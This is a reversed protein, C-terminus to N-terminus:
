GPVHTPGKPKAQIAGPADLRQVLANLATPDPTIAAAPQVPAARILESPVNFARALWRAAADSDVTALASPGLSSLAGLWNLVNRADRRGQNQALPSRYQLDITRGDVQLPPIEGRRRLIHIARLILPTLLESQLRGYTAGLLRAMDDARQLVETATLAPSAPQSLKDGMLAHRIRGRLDDLVLQSTDFRGPATLPQLGASGVAKPIITGPVLKINAPNLVGDDDAQWIGTVAITANKLVLEVVKNATKIDPLAKMVPSRGYVEGPAKLWRFNLFPSSSFQGRGLVLDSGDDDLVAAYSYGGRVPVVAEVVGLRLDPDDAAAKIVERPLVARPFRAKLAAVSLESRRFTVDLRGAPGEELVVQGLPVSTFRFASPEGPPAEEFMLSATGGTVADLYCQHMEIAFNSRDFHSQMVAAIRELLPAAQDRDAEPMQDGAALGFWQAWPPTLESLLSAALQDVCDPATGDFLRDAKREGPVSSHFMGDRLPLAYDYCEQWHSEWTSRREKAKRYRRLLFSPDCGEDGLLVEGLAAKDEAAERRPSQNSAM